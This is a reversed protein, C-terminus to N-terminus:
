KSLGEKWIWDPDIGHERVFGFHKEHISEVYKKLDFLQNDFYNKNKTLMQMAKFALSFRDVGHVIMMSFHTFNGSQDFYGLVEFREPKPREFLLSKVASPYGNFCILVPQNISFVQLFAEDNPAHPYSSPSGLSALESVVVVRVCIDVVYNKLINAAALCEGVAWDGIATLIIDAQETNNGNIISFGEKVLSESLEIDFWVRTPFKTATVVNIRNRSQLAEETTVLLSNADIPYFLRIYSGKRALLVNVLDPNQHTYCNRWGLSTLFLNLAPLPKRWSIDQVELIYKLYQGLMSSLIPAFAEYSVLLGSRGSLVYGQLWGQCIHENLIEMVRSTNDGEPSVSLLSELRNSSLEDPCFLRFSRFKDKEIVVSLYKALAKAPSVEDNKSFSVEQITPLTLTQKRKLLNNLTKSLRKPYAPLVALTEERPEGTLFFLEEPRYSRLWSEIAQVDEKSSIKPLPAKHSAVGNEILRGRMETPATWGKPTRLIIIVKKGKKILECAQELAIQMAEHSSDVFLPTYGMGSFYSNLEKNSFMSLISRSGMRFNNLHLIPLVSGSINHDIQHAGLWGAATLGTEAEGDGIIVAVLLDSHDLSIGQAITLAPGLEGGLYVMGPYHASLETQFGGIGGFSKALQTLGSLNRKLSPFNEELTGELFLNALIAPGAHGPGIVLLTQQDTRKVFASLHSYIFNVGPCTGWHGVIRKKFDGLRLERDLLLNDKLYLMAGTIYNAARWFRECKDLDYYSNLMWEGGISQM